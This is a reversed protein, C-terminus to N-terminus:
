IVRLLLIQIYIHIFDEIIFYNNNGIFKYYYVFISNVLSKNIFNFYILM